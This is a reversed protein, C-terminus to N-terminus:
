PATELQTYSSHKSRMHRHLNEFTRNCCPCVGNGVRNKIRTVVGRTASLQRDKQEAENRWIRISDDKEALQQKLRDREQRLKDEDTPGDSYHASHGYPCFFNITSSRKAARYLEVPLWYDCKCKWCTVNVGDGSM